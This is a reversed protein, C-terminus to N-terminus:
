KEARRKDEAKQQQTAIALKADGRSRFVNGVSYRFRCSQSEKIWTGQCIDGTDGRVWYFVDGNQPWESNEM